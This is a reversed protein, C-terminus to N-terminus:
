NRNQCNNKADNISLDPTQNWKNTWNNTSNSGNMRCFIVSTYGSPVTVKYFNTSVKTMSVWKEGNGFFYAAFRAGDKNWDGFSETSLYIVTNNDSAACAPIAFVSIVSILMALTLIIIIIKSKNKM